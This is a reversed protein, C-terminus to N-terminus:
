GRTRVEAEAATGVTVLHQQRTETGALYGALIRAVLTSLSWHREKAEAELGAKVPEILLVTIPKKEM